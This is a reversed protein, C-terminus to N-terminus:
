ATRVHRRRRRALLGVAGVALLGASAPEPVASLNNVTVQINTPNYTVLAYNPGAPNSNQTPQGNALVTDFVGTEAAFTAITYTTQTTIPTLAVLNLQDPNSLTLLGGAGSGTLALLDNDTGAVPTPAATLTRILTTFCYLRDTCSSSELSAM